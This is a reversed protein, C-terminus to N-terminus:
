RSHRRAEADHAREVHRLVALQLALTRRAVKLVVCIRQQSVGVYEAVVGQNYGLANGLLACRQARPLDVILAHISKPWATLNREDALVARLVPDSPGAGALRRMAKSMDEVAGEFTTGLQARHTSDRPLLYERLWQAWIGLAEDVLRDEPTDKPRREKRPREIRQFLPSVPVSEATVSM